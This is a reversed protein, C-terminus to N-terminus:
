FGSVPGTEQKKSGTRNGTKCKSVLIFRYVPRNVPFVPFVPFFAQICSCGQLLSVPRDFFQLFVPSFHPIDPIKRLFKRPTGKLYTIFFRKYNFSDVSM